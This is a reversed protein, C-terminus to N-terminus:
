KKDNTNAQDDHKEEIEKLRKIIEKGEESSRDIGSEWRHLSSLYKEGDVYKNLGPIFSFIKESSISRARGRATYRRWRLDRCIVKIKVGKHTILPLWSGYFEEMFLLYGSQVDGPHVRGNPSFENGFISEIEPFRSFYVPLLKFNEGIEQRPINPFTIPLLGKSWRRRKNKFKLEFDTIALNKETPNCLTLSLCFAFRAAEAGAHKYQKLFAITATTPDIRIRLKNDLKQSLGKIAKLAGSIWAVLLGLLFIFLNILHPNSNFYDIVENLPGINM